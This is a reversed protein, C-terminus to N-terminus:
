AGLAEYEYKWAITDGAALVWPRLPNQLTAFNPSGANVNPEAKCKWNFTIGSAGPNKINVTFQTVGIGTLWPLGVSNTSGSTFDIKVDDPNPVLNLGHSIVQSTAGSAISGNTGRSMCFQVFSQTYYNEEGPDANTGPAADLLTAVMQQNWQPSASSPKYVWTKGIPQDAGARRSGPLPLRVGLIDGVGFTTNSDFTIQGWCIVMGNAKRVYRGTRSATDGVNMQTLSGGPAIFLKLDPRYDQGGFLKKSGSLLGRNMLTM